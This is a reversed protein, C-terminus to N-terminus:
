RGWIFLKLVWNWIRTVLPQPYEIVPPPIIEVSPTATPPEAITPTPSLTHQIKRYIKTPTPTNTPATVGQVSPQQTSNQTIPQEDIKKVVAEVCAGCKMDPIKLDENNYGCGNENCWDYPKSSPVEGTPSPIPTVSVVNITSSLTQTFGPDTEQARVIVITLQSIAIIIAFCLVLRAVISQKILHKYNM